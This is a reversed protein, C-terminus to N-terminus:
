LSTRTESDRHQALLMMTELATLVEDMGPRAAADSQWCRQILDRLGPPCDAPLPPRKGAIVDLSVTLFHRGCYPQRRAVVEWM